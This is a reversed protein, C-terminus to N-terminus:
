HTVTYLIGYKVRNTSCGRTTGCQPVIRFTKKRTEPIILLTLQVGGEFLVAGYKKYVSILLAGMGSTNM